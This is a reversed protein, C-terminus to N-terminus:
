LKDKVGDLKKEIKYRYRLDTTLLKQKTQLKAQKVLSDLVKQAEAYPLSDIKYLAGYRKYADEIEEKTSDEITKLIVNDIYTNVVVTREIYHEMSKIEDTKDFNDKKAEYLIIQQVVFTEFLDAKAQAIMASNINGASRLAEEFTADFDAKPVNMDEIVVCPDDKDSYKIKYKKGSEKLFRSYEKKMKEQMITAEIQLHIDQYKVNGVAMQIRPQERNWYSKKEDESVSLLNTNLIKPAYMQAIQRDLERKKLLLSEPKKDFGEQKAKIYIVELDILESVFQWLTMDNAFMLKMREYGGGSAVAYNSIESKLSYLTIDYVSSNDDTIRVVWNETEAYASALTAFLFLFMYIHKM